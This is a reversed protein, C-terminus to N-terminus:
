KNNIIGFSPFKDLTIFDIKLNYDDVFDNVARIVGPMELTYDHGSILGGNKVKERALKLDIMVGEYSHDGDIYIIDFYDNSFKKLVDASKGKHLEVSKQHKFYNKLVNLEHDLNAWKLNNGDKDGSCVTGEFIDILHLNIPTLFENIIKSFSGEFVGIEAIVSNKPFTSIMDNRTQFYQM